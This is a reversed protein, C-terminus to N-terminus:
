GVTQDFVKCDISGSIRGHDHQTWPGVVASGTPEGDVKERFLPDTSITLYLIRKHKDEVILMIAKLTPQVQDITLNFNLPKLIAVGLRNAQHHIGDVVAVALYRHSVM